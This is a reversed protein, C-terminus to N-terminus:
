NLIITLIKLIKYPTVFSTKVYIDFKPFCMETESIYDDCFGFIRSEALKDDVQNQCTSIGYSKTDLDFSLSLKDIAIQAESAKVEEREVDNFTQQLEEISDM